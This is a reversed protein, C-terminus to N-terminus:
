IKTIVNFELKFVAGTNSNSVSLKGNCHEEIITKSMYLGLGTGDKEQKTSFYPDFVKDIIEEPIGGANDEVILACNNNKICITQILITPNIVNNEVLIDEANKIINLLVQKVESAYIEVENECTIDTIVKINKNEVSTKVIDLTNNIIQSLTTKEKVKKTKFFGRFDDITKSLHQSYTSILELENEFEKKNYENLILKLTLNNATASIATLPQRWQHAIMSLMEGMQALRSHQILQKAQLRNKDVELKVKEELTKNLKDLTYTKLYLSIYLKIKTLFLNENIPKTLYDLAGLEYGQQIFYEDKFIATLFIIPIDKTNQNMKLHKAVEFGDMEPMQIDLIILDIKQNIIIELAKKGSLSKIINISTLYEDDFKLNQLLAELTYLNSKNDDVILINVIM